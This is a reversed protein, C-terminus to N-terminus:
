EALVGTSGATSSANQLASVADLGSLHCLRYGIRVVQGLAQLRAFRCFIASTCHTHPPLALSIAQDSRLLPIIIGSEM